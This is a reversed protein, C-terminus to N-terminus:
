SRGSFLGWFAKSKDKKVDGESRSPPISSGTNPCGSGYISAASNNNVNSIADSKVGEATAVDVVGSLSGSGTSESSMPIVPILHAAVAPPPGPGFCDEVSFFPSPSDSRSRRILVCWYANLRGEPLDIFMASTLEHLSWQLLSVCM